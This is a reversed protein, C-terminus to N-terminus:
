NVIELEPLIVGAAEQNGAPWVCQHAVVHPAVETISHDQSQNEPMRIKQDM